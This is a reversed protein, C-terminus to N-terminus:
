QEDKVFCSNIGEQITLSPKWGLTEKTHTIDIQLNGCLKDFMNKKGLIISFARLLSLPIPILFVNRGMAISMLELLQTTSVDADDSVLFTENAANPHESCTVILDVLNDLAVFSRKNNVAGLPLVFSGELLKVLKGFNGPANPGYVLPPRIITFQMGTSGSIDKLILEAELKSQGYVESPKPPECYCIPALDNAAHVGITSVFIFRSVGSAAAIRALKETYEVNVKRMQLSKADGNRIHAMGALHIVVDIGNCFQQLDGEDKFSYVRVENDHTCTSDANDRTLFFGKKELERVLARGVFGTAGTVLIKM